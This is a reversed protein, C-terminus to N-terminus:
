NANSNNRSPGGAGCPQNSTLPQRALVLIELLIIFPGVDLIMKGHRSIRQAISQFATHVKKRKDVESASIQNLKRLHVAAGWGQKIKLSQKHFYHEFLLGGQKLSGSSHVFRVSCGHPCPGTNGFADCPM